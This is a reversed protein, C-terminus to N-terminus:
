VYPDVWGSPPSPVGAKYAFSYVSDGGGIRIRPMEFPKALLETHGLDTTVADRFGAAAVMNVVSADYDGYPYAFDLVPVRLLNELTARDVLVENRAAVAPLANLDVHNVTHDGIVMGDAAVEQVQAATMYSPRGMFGTNVFNIAVFGDALLVPVAQTAFDDHGDDFTLVVSRRPLPPGGELAAMLQGLTVTHGGVQRLWDMQQKFIGPPTSLGWGVRDNPNTVTRIYHYVLIPVTINAITHNSVAPQAHPHKGQSRRTTSRGSPARAVTNACAFGIHVSEPSKIPATL